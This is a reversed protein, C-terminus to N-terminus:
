TERRGRKAGNHGQAHQYSQTTKSSLARAAYEDAAFWLQENLAHIDELQNLQRVRSKALEVLSPFRRQVFKLLLNRAEKVEGELVGRAEGRLEGQAVKEKVWPDEELLPDFMRVRRLVREMEVEPLPRARQLLVLFCLLEDRLFEQNTRYYEVMEGVAQQLLEESVQGMCPLLGYVPVEGAEMFRRADLGRLCLTQYQFRLLEEEGCSEVLPSEVMTVEFPYIIVSIVPLEYEELFLAHFLRAFFFCFPIFSASPAERWGDM